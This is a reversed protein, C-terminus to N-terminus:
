IPFSLGLPAEDISFIFDSNLQAQVSSTISVERVLSGWRIMFSWCMGLLSLSQLHYWESGERSHVAGGRTLYDWWGLIQKIRWLTVHFIDSLSVGFLEYGMHLPPGGWPQCILFYMRSSWRGHEHYWCSTLSSIANTIFWYTFCDVIYNFSLHRPYVLPGSRAPTVMGVSEILKVDVKNWWEGDKM